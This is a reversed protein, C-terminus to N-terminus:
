HHLVLILKVKPAVHAVDHISSVQGVLVECCHEIRATRMGVGAEELQLLLVLEVDRPVEFSQTEVVVVGVRAAHDLVAFHREVRWLFVAAIISVIIHHLLPEVLDGHSPLYVKKHAIILWGLM